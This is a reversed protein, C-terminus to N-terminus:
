GCRTRRDTQLATGPRKGHGFIQPFTLIASQDLRDFGIQCGLIELAGLNKAIDIRDFIQDRREQCLDMMVRLVAKATKAIANNGPTRNRKGSCIGIVIIGFHAQPRGIFLGPELDLGHHELGQRCAIIVTTLKIFGFGNQDSVKAAAGAVKRHNAKGRAHANAANMRKRMGTKANRAVAKIVADDLFGDPRTKTKAAFIAGHPGCQRHRALIVGRKRAPM